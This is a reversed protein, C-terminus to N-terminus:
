GALLTGHRRLTDGTADLHFLPLRDLDYCGAFRYRGGEIWPSELPVLLARTPALQPPNPATEGAPSTIPAADAPTPKTLACLHDALDKGNSKALDFWRVSAAGADWLQAAWRHAGEMGAGDAHVAITVEKGAFHPLDAAMINNGAGTICVFAIRDLDLGGLRAVIPAALLDPGGEILWVQPRAGIVSAGICPASSTGPLTKAKKGGIGDWLGRDLKRAQVNARTPDTVVWAPWHKGDDFVSGVFLLSRAVLVEMGDATPWDRGTAIERLEKATPERLDPLATKRACTPAPRHVPGTPRPIFGAGDQGALQAIRQRHEKGPPGANAVCGWRGAGGEMVVLHDGSTDAGAERCAPCAAIIRGARERVNELKSLDLNVSNSPFHHFRFLRKGPGRTELRQIKRKWNKLPPFPKTEPKTETRKWTEAM